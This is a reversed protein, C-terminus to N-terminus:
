ITVSIQNSKVRDSSRSKKMVVYDKVGKSSGFECKQPFEDSDISCSQNMDNMIRSCFDLVMNLEKNVLPKFDQSKLLKNISHTISKVQFKIKRCQERTLM